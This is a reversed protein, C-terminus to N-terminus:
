MEFNLKHGKEPVYCLSLEARLSEMTHATIPSTQKVSGGIRLFMSSNSINSDALRRDVQNSSVLLYLLRPFHVRACV